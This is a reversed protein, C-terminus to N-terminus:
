LKLSNHSPTHGYHSIADKGLKFDTSIDPITRTVSNTMDLGGKIEPNLFAVSLSMHTTQTYTTSGKDIQTPSIDKISASGDSFKM